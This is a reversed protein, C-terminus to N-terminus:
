EKSWTQKIIHKKTRFYIDGQPGDIWSMRLECFQLGPFLASAFCFLMFDYTGRSRQSLRAVGFGLWFVAGIKKLKEESTEGLM